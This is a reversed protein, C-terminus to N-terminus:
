NGPLIDPLQATALHGLAQIQGLVIQQGTTGSSDVSTAQFRGMREDTAPHGDSFYNGSGPTNEAYMAIIAGQVVFADPNKIAVAVKATPVGRELTFVLDAPTLPDGNAKKLTLAM